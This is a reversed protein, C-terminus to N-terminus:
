CCCCWVAYLFFPLDGDFCLGAHSPLSADLVNVPLKEPWRICSVCSFSVIRIGWWTPCPPSASGWQHLVRRIFTLLYRWLWHRTALPLLQCAHRYLGNKKDMADNFSRSVLLRTDASTTHKWSSTFLYSPLHIWTKNKFSIKRQFISKSCWTAINSGVAWDKCGSRRYFCQYRWQNALLLFFIVIDIQLTSLAQRFHWCPHRRGATSLHQEKPQFVERKSHSGRWLFHWTCFSPMGKVSSLHQNLRGQSDSHLVLKHYM